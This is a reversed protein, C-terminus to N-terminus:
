PHVSETFWEGPLERGVGREKAKRLVLEGVAAFQVGMGVNNVFCTIEEAGRRGAARGTM